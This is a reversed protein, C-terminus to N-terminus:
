ILLSNFDFSIVNGLQHLVLQLLYMFIELDVQMSLKLQGNDDSIEWFYSCFHKLVYSM